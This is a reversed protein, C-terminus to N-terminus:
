DIKSHSTKSYNFKIFATEHGESCTRGLLTEAVQLKDQVNIAM